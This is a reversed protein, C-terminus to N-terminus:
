TKEEKRKKALNTSHLPSEHDFKTGKVWVGWLTHLGMATAHHLVHEVTCEPSAKGADKQALDIARAMEVQSDDLQWTMTPM